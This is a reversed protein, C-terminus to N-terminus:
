QRMGGKDKFFGFDDAYYWPTTGSDFPITIEGYKKSLRELERKEAEVDANQLYQQLSHVYNRRLWIRQKMADTIEYHQIDLVEELPSYVKEREDYQYFKIVEDAYVAYLAITHVSQERFQNCQQPLATLWWWEHLWGHLTAIGVTCKDNFDVMSQQELDILKKEPHLVDAKQIRPIADIRTTFADIDILQMLDHSQLRYQRNEYGPRTFVINNKNEMGKINFQMVAVNPTTKHILYNRHRCIRGALQIISRYSSPEIIAWDFDHDRGVEEVPTAVVMFLVNEENTTDLAQRVVADQLCAKEDNRKLVKDLYTEQIHRLLLIQRSHYTMVKVTYGDTWQCTLLYKSIQVCPDINATRIVGFSVKKGTADDVIHHKDHLTEATQRIADLYAPMGEAPSVPVIMGKRKVPQKLLRQMRKKVFETHLKMYAADDCTNLRQVTTKFEDCLVISCRKKEAFFENCCALGAEYARYMGEALDPPITASSIIVNRGMMGALHVLRAIAILDKKGFDDIEDIVVDSSLLRLFPLMYRGGHITETAGMMHDITAVLVPKYLLAKHKAAQPGQFFISLFHQSEDDPDKYVAENPIMVQGWISPEEAKDMEHLDRVASSGILVALDEESLGLRQRYEDGTQLTLSRLGLALIYRLSKEDASVAQMIKANAFTKGCGTSAMNVIFFAQKDETKKRFERIKEVVTDQWRYIGSSKKRLRPVDYVREMDQTFRPLQHAIKVAQDMVGAIHNELSQKLQAHETNAWLLEKSKSATVECSGPLSSYYYDGIMLCLRADWLIPRLALTNDLVQLLKKQHQLMKRAWRKIRSQWISSNEVLMGKPFKFCRSQAQHDTCAENQYGWSSQIRHLVSDFDPAEIDRYGACTNADVQPMKHHSIVLWMLIRAIPPIKKMEITDYPQRELVATLAKEKVTGTALAELWKSDDDTSQTCIVLAEIIKCSVWEHRFPDKLLSAKKRLSHKLKEQFCQSSKGLDHFLAAMAALLKIEPLYQWDNEWEQHNMNRRTTCIPVIGETNFTDRNGVIWYLESRSRSHIWHCAVATNKTANRQLLIKVAKLGEETIVTKWVDNGIRDAFHDLIRRVTYLSKKESRSTFIVVM